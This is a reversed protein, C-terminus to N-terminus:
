KQADKHMGKISTRLGETLQLRGLLDDLSTNSILLFCKASYIDADRLLQIVPLLKELPFLGYEHEVLSTQLWEFGSM